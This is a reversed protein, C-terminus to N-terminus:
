TKLTVLEHLDGRVPSLEPRADPAIFRMPLGHRPALVIGRVVRSV